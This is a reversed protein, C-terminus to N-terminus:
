GGGTAGLGCCSAGDGVAAGLVDLVHVHVPAIATHVAPFTSQGIGERTGLASGAPGRDGTLQV